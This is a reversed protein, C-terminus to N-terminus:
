VRGELKRVDNDDVLVRSSGLIPLFGAALFTAVIVFEEITVMMAQAVVAITTSSQLSFVNPDINFVALIPFIIRVALLPLSIGSAILLPRESTVVQDRHLIIAAYVLVLGVFVSIFIIVAARELTGGENDNGPQSDDLYTASVIALAIAASTALHLLRFVHSSLYFDPM